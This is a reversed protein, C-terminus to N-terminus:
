LKSDKPHKLLQHIQLSPIKPIKSVKLKVIKLDQCKLLYVKVKSAQVKSQKFKLNGRERLTQHMRLGVSKMQNLPVIMNSHIWKLGQGMNNPLWLWVKVTDHSCVKWGCLESALQLMELLRAQLDVLRCLKLIELNWFTLRGCNCAQLVELEWVKLHEFPSLTVIDFRWVWSAEFYRPKSAEYKWHMGWTERMYICTLSIYICVSVYDLSVQAQGRSPSLELM